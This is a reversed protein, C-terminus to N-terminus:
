LRLDLDPKIQRVANRTSWGLGNDESNRTLKGAYVDGLNPLAAVIRLLMRETLGTKEAYLHKLQKLNSAIAEAVQEDVRNGNIYLRELSTAHRAIDTLGRPGAGCYEVGLM